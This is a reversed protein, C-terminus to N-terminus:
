RDQWSTHQDHQCERPCVHHSLSTLIECTAPHPFSWNSACPFLYNWVPPAYRLSSHYISHTISIPLFSLCPFTEHLFHCRFRYRVPKTYCPCLFPPPVNQAPSINCASGWMFGTCHDKKRWYKCNGECAKEEMGRHSCMYARKGWTELPYM